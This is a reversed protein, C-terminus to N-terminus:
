RNLIVLYAFEKVPFNIHYDISIILGNHYTLINIVIDTQRLLVSLLDIYCLKMNADILTLLIMLKM